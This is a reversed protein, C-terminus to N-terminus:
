QLHTANAFALSNCYPSPFANRGQRCVLRGRAQVRVEDPGSRLENLGDFALGGVMLRVVGVASTQVARALPQLQAPQGYCNVVCIM